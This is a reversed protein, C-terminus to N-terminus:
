GKKRHAMLHCEKCLTVGNDVDFRSEPHDSFRKIHHANLTGGIRGCVQCRYHDREFVATRWERYELSNRIERVNQPVKFSNPHSKQYDIDSYFRELVDQAEPSIWRVVPRVGSKAYIMVCDILAGKEKDSFPQWMDRWYFPLKFGDM